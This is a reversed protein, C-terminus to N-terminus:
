TSRLIVGCGYGCVCVCVRLVSMEWDHIVILIAHSVDFSPVAPYSPLARDAMTAAACLSCLWCCPEVGVKQKRRRTLLELIEGFVITSRTISSSCHTVRDFLKSAATNQQQLQCAAGPTPRAQAHASVTAGVHSTAVVSLSATKLTCQASVDDTHGTSYWTTPQRHIPLDPPSQFKLKNDNSATQRM